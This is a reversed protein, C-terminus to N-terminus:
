QPYYEVRIYGEFGDILAIADDFIQILIQWNSDISIQSYLEFAKYQVGIELSVYTNLDTLNTNDPVGLFSGQSDKSWTINGITNKFVTFTPASPGSQSVKAVFVLPQSDQLPTLTTNLEDILKNIEHVQVGRFDGEKKEFQSPYPRLKLKNLM